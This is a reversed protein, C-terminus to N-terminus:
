STVKGTVTSVPKPTTPPVTPTPSTSTPASPTPSPVGSAPSTASPATGAASAASQSAGDSGRGVAVVTGATAAAILLWGVSFVAVVLPKRARPTADPPLEFM